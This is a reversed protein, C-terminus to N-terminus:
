LAQLYHSPIDEKRTKRADKVFERTETEHKKVERLVESSEDSDDCCAMIRM